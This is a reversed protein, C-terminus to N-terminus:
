SNIDSKLVFVNLILLLNRRKEKGGMSNLLELIVLHALIEQTAAIRYYIITKERDHNVTDGKKREWIIEGNFEKM